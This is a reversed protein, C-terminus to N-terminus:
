IRLYNLLTQLENKGLNSSWDIIKRKKPTETSRQTNFMRNKFHKLIKM